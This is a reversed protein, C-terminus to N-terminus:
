KKDLAEQISKVLEDSTLKNFAIWYKVEELTYVSEYNNYNLGRQEILVKLTEEDDVIADVIGSNLDDFNKSINTTLNLTLDKVARNLFQQGTADGVAGIKYQKLDNLSSIKINKDKKALIVMKASTLPGAWKFLQEREETRSTSFLAYNKNKQLDEYAETWPLVKIDSTTKKSGLKKLLDAVEKVSSGTLENKDNIYNYPPANDTIWTIDDISEIARSTGAILTFLIIITSLLNKLNIYM